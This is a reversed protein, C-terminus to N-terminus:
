ERPRLHATGLAAACGLTLSWGTLSPDPGFATALVLVGAATGLVLTIAVPRRPYSREGLGWGMLLGFGVAVVAAVVDM